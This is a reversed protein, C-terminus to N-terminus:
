KLYFASNGSEIQISFVRFLSHCSLLLLCSRPITSCVACLLEHNFLMETFALLQITVPQLYCWIVTVPHSHEALENFMMFNFFGFWRQESILYVFILHEESLGHQLQM